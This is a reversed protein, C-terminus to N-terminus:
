ARSIFFLSLLGQRQFEIVIHSHFSPFSTRGNMAMLSYYAYFNYFFLFIKYLMHFYAECDTLGISPINQLSRICTIAQAPTKNNIWESHESNRRWNDDSHRTTCMVDSKASTEKKEIRNQFLCIVIRTKKKKKTIIFYPLFHPICQFICTKAFALLLGKTFLLNSNPYWHCIAIITFTNKLFIMFVFKQRLLSFYKVHSLFNKHWLYNALLWYFFSNFSFTFILDRKIHIMFLRGFLM